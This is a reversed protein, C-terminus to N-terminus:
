RQQSIREALTALMAMAAEPREVLLARVAEGSIVMGRVGPPEAIVTAARPAERLVALEGIHEGPGVTRLLHETGGDGHVVRVSGEVVVVMDSGVEGQSMLVDGDAWAQETAAAAVRQLDEPDLSAFIPVRRLALMRDVESVLHLEQTVPRMGEEIGVAERVIPSPDAAVREAIRRREAGIHESLTRLALARVWVDPDSSLATAASLVDGPANGEDPAGHELLRIVGRALRPEGLADIAEIAQARVEPDPAHLCRRILGGAEPAGLVALAQLLRAEIAAERRGLVSVLYAASPSGEFGVLAGRLRRLGAARRVQGDTWELLDDRAVDIHGELASLAAEQTGDTGARLRELVLPAADFRSRVIQAATLRVERAGDGFAALFPELDDEGLALAAGARLAAGRVRPSADDRFRDVMGTDMERGLRPIAELAAARDAVSGSALMTDILTQALQRHDAHVALVALEARVLPSEDRALGVPTGSEDSAGSDFVAEAQGLEGLAALATARVRGDADGLAAMLLDSAARGELAVVATLAVRRVEPDDDVALRRLDPTADAAGLRGLLDAALLREHTAESRTATRLEAIVRTDRRMVALGPGGELVQEARGERLTQVLTTAYARRVLLGIGLCIAATVFGVVFLQELALSAALVLLVGSLITGLQGPVGDMFALVQGRRRGPLVSFYAGFAANTVGRQVVQQGFRVLLATTATFRVMWIGFGTLYVIPLALAVTAVGLRAYLRNALLTGVLFAAVTVASYLFALVTLLDSERPYAAEMATFFPFELSFLLIALLVYAVAVLRMLPSAAVYRAGASLAGTVSLAGGSPRRRRAQTGLQSLLAAAVLLAVVEGLLLAELGVVRQVLIASLYGALSGVIAASTLLPFLRKAQRADFTLGGVTWLATLLLMGAALIGIWLVALIEDPGVLAALWGLALVTAILILLGAFSRVNDSGALAAGYALTVVLGVIGLGIYLVPLVGAGLRDVVLTAIGVEGMGRGMEVAAFAGAVLAVLRGEGPRIAVVRALRSM